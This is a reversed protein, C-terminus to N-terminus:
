VRAAGGGGDASQEVEWRRLPEDLSRDYSRLLERLARAAARPESGAVASLLELVLRASELDVRQTEACFRAHWRLAIRAFCTLSATRRRRSTNRSCSPTLEYRQTPRRSCRNTSAAPPRLNTWAIM